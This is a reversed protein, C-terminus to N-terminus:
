IPHLAEQAERAEPHFAFQGDEFDVRVRQGPQIEGSLLMRSLPTELERQVTRRLPRAGYRAEFGREALADKAADSVEVEVRQSALKRQTITLLMEAIRRVQARDLPHFVIVEDIRNIFEPRFQERLAALVQEQVRVSEGDTQFGVRDRAAFREAGVNSTMVVLTNKFSVTRGHADTLRGDELIQLLLNFVDPHAKEIEDFLLVAYPRRRVAETLKGAEEYGVYGPPAGVLRSVTHREMYESMDFRIMAEEDNFLFEALARATETKGV